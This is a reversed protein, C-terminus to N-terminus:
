NSWNPPLAPNGRARIEDYLQELVAVGQDPHDAAWDLTDALSLLIERELSDKRRRRASRRLEAAKEHGKWVLALEAILRIPARHDTPPVPPSGWEFMGTHLRAM